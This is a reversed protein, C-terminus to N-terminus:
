RSAETAEARIGIALASGEGARLVVGKARGDEGLEFEFTVSPEVNFLEGRQYLGPSFRNMGAPILDFALDDEPHISFSMWARLLGDDTATVIMEGEEPWGPLPVVQLEYNGLFPAREEATLTAPKTPEVLIHMPVRTEGWHMDLTAADGMVRPFDFTLMERHPAAEAQVEINYRGDATDPKQFHFYETDDNLTLTWAGERPTMWVSYAGADVDVGNIKINKTTELTTAWNAGPTWTIGWPVLGGFLDRGRAGPRSYEVTITTGDITQSM